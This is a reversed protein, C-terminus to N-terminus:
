VVPRMTSKIHFIIVTIIILLLVPFLLVFIYEDIDDEPYRKEHMRSSFIHGSTLFLSSHLSTIPCCISIRMLYFTVKRSGSGGVTVAGAPVFCPWGCRGDGEESACNSFMFLSQHLFLSPSVPAWRFVSSSRCHPVGLASLLTHGCAWKGWVPCSSYLIFASSYNLLSSLHMILGFKSLLIPESRFGMSSGSLCRVWILHVNNDMSLSYWGAYYVHESLLLSFYILNM